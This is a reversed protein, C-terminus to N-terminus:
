DKDSGSSSRNSQSYDSGRIKAKVTWNRVPEGQLQRASMTRSLMLSTFGIIHVPATRAPFLCFSLKSQQEASV